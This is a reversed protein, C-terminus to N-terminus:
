IDLLSRWDARHAEAVEDPAGRLVDAPVMDVVRRAADYHHPHAVEAFWRSACRSWSPTPADDLFGWM